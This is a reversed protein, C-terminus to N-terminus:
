KRSKYKEIVYEYERGYCGRRKSEDETKQGMVLASGESVGIM